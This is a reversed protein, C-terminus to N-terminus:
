VASNGPSAAHSEKNTKNRRTIRREHVAQLLHYGAAYLLNEGTAGDVVACPATNRHHAYLYNRCLTAFLYLDPAICLVKVIPFSIFNPFKAFNCCSCFRQKMNQQKAHTAVSVLRTKITARGAASAVCGFNQLPPSSFEPALGSRRRRKRDPRVRLTICFNVPTHRATKCKFCLFDGATRFFCRESISARERPTFGCDINPFKPSYCRGENVRQLYYQLYSLYVFHKKSM